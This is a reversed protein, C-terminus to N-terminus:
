DRDGVLNWDDCVVTRSGSSLPHIERALHIGGSSSVSAHALELGTGAERTRALSPGPIEDDYRYRRLVVASDLIDSAELHKSFVTEVKLYGDEDPLEELNLIPRGATECQPRVKGHQSQQNLAPAQPDTRGTHGSSRGSRHPHLVSRCRSAQPNRHRTLSRGCCRRSRWGANRRSM